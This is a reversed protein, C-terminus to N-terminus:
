LAFSPFLIFSGSEFSSFLGCGVRRRHRRLSFLPGRLAPIHLADRTKIVKGNLRYVATGIGMIPVKTEDGLTAYHGHVPQYSTFTSYDPFMDDTAGTDGVCDVDDQVFTAVLNPNASLAAGAVQDLAHLHIM